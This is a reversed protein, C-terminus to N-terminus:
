RDAPMASGPAAQTATHRAILRDHEDCVRVDVVITIRGRHVVEADATLTGRNTSPLLRTGRGAIMAGRGWAKSRARVDHATM